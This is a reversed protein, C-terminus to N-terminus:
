SGALQGWFMLTGQKIGFSSFQSPFSLNLSVNKESHAVLLTQFSSWLVSDIKLFYFAEDGKIQSRVQLDKTGENSLILEREVSGGPGLKGFSIGSSSVSFAVEPTTPAEDGLYGEGVEVTLFLEQISEGVIVVAIPSRVFGEKEARVEFVGSEDALFAFSGGATTQFTEGAVLVSAGELGAWSTGDYTQVIGSVQSGTTYTENGTTLRLPQTSGIGYHWLLSDGQVLDFDAAGISPSIWNVRYLWGSVGQATEGAVSSLYSGFDTNEIVYSYGCQLSGAEVAELATAAKVNASCLTGGSGEVRLSIEPISRSVKRVPYSAESLAIVAYSTSLKTFSNEGFGDDFWGGSTQRSLLYALPNSAGKTWSAPDEGAKFLGSIVWSTSSVDSDTGFPSAPDYPFGGDDNQASRLYSVASQIVPDSPFLGAEILASLAMATMNTDSTGGVAFAWGGDEAQQTLLYAKEQQIVPDLLPEGASLLALLGFIDDNLTAEDGIQTGDSFGKLKAVLDEPFFTRPDKGAASAALMPAELDLAASGSVSLSSTDPIQGAAAQAMVIWPSSSQTTLYSLADSVSSAQIGQGSFVLVSALVLFSFISLTTRM